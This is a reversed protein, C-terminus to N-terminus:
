RLVLTTTESGRPGLTLPQKATGLREHWAAVVYTGPPVNELAFAGDAGTVAFYPHDFVGIWGQMWPHLDCRVSVAVEPHDIRLTRQSGQRSLAFNWGSSAEPKGHVNHLVRDSNRYEIAQGVQAGVVRPEYLCGRQDIHVPQEPIAFVRDGLGDAIYVIANEITGDHVLADNTLVPGDHVAACEAFSGFSIESMAPVPGDFRVTGRITGTTSADLPTPERRPAAEQGGGCAIAAVFPLPALLAVRWRM